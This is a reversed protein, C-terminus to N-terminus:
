LLITEIDAGTALLKHVPCKNSIALLRERQQESLDGSLTLRAVIHYRRDVQTASVAVTVDELPWGKRQAYMKLTIAKCAGLGSFVMETPTPGADTGGLDIPEDATLQFQRVAIDHRYNDTTSAVMIESM